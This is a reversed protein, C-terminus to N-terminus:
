IVQQVGRKQKTQRPELAKDIILLVSTPIYRLYYIGLICTYGSIYLHILFAMNLYM